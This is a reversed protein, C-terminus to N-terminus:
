PGVVGHTDGRRVAHEVLAPPLATGSAVPGPGPAGLRGLVDAGLDRGTHWFLARPASDM